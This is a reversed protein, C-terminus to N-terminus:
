NFGIEVFSPIELKELKKKTLEKGQIKREM